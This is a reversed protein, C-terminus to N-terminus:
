GKAADEADVDEKDEGSEEEGSHKDEAKPQEEGTAGDGKQGSDASAEQNQGDKSESMDLDAAAVPDTDIAEEETPASADPADDGAEGDDDSAQGMDEGPSQPPPEDGDEGEDLDLDMGDEEQLDDPADDGDLDLDPLNLNDAEPMNVEDPNRQAEPADEGNPDEPQGGESAQDPIDVDDQDQGAPTEQPEPANEEPTSQRKDKESKSQEDKATMESEGTQETKQDLQENSAEKPEEKEEEDWFKEDVAGPDLPDVDGVHEDHDADDGDEDGEEDNDDGDRDAMEGEFDDEMDFANDEGEEDKDEPKDNEEEEEEGRLGEVQSEDEIQDSVNKDGTGAGMGTGDSTEGEGDQQKSKDAESPKCFGKEALNLMTKGLIYSLKYLAKTNNIECAAVSAATNIYTGVFPLMRKLLDGLEPNRGHAQTHSAVDDVFNRLRRLLSPLALSEVILRMRSDEALLHIEAEPNDLKVGPQRLNQASVLLADIINDAQLDLPTSDTSSIVSYTEVNISEIFALLPALLHRASVHQRLAVHLSEKARLL